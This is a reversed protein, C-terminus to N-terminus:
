IRTGGIDSCHAISGFMAVLRDDRFVPSVVALDYLHGACVWPDNTILVDGPRLESRPIENCMAAVANPLVLNFAPMSRPAHAITSGNADLIECGYDLSEGIVLSFATRHIAAFAEEAITVLRGFVIELSVPDSYAFTM